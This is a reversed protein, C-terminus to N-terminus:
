VRAADFVIAARSAVVPVTTQCCFISFVTSGTFVALQTQVLVDVAVGTM